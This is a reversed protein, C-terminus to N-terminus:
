TALVRSKEAVQGILTAGTPRPQTAQSCTPRLILYWGGRWWLGGVSRCVARPVQPPVAPPATKGAVALDSGPAARLPQARTAPVPSDRRQHAGRRRCDHLGELHRREAGEGDGETSGER